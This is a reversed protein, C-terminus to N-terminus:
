LDPTSYEAECSLYIPQLADKELRRRKISTSANQEAPRKGLAQDSRVELEDYSIISTNLKVSTIPRGVLQVFSDNVALPVFISTDHLLHTIAPEGIRFCLEAVEIFYLINMVQRILLTEWEVSKLVTINTNTFVNTVGQRTGDFRGFEGRVHAQRYGMTIVNNARGKELSLLSIQVRDIIKNPYDVGHFHRFSAPFLIM